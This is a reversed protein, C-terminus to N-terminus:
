ATETTGLILSNSYSTCNRSFVACSSLCSRLSYAHIQCEVRNKLLRECQVVREQIMELACSVIARCPIRSTRAEATYRHLM